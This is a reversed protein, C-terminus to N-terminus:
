KACRKVLLQMLCCRQRVVALSSGRGTQVSHWVCFRHIPSRRSLQKGTSAVRKGDPSFACLQGLPHGTIEVHFLEKGSAANWIKLSESGASAIREGDPSVAVGRVFSTSHRLTTQHQTFLTHLYDHEWGRFDQRCAQLHEWASSIFGTEWERQASAIQNGYLLWEARSLQKEAREFEQLVETTKKDARQKELEARRWESRAESERAMAQLAFALSVAAGAALSLITAALLSAVAPQRKCWRWARELRGVPRATIPAGSLYRRLDDAFAAATDYRRGPEKAMAKLCVTQLDRPIRDNLSRPARPEDNLVQHMLMRQNGRFPLEGTLLEYLIVGLSYV